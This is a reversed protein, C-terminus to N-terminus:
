RNKLAREMQRKADQKAQTDRKDYLKKGKAVALEMKIHSGSFYLCLPVLTYGEQKILGFLKNIERKHLLLRRPRMPDRNFINGQEYPSIHMGLLFAEGDKIEVYSDKLNARAARLSKVETGCLEIGAEMTEIIFYDHRAKKNQLM